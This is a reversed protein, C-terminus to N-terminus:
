SKVSEGPLVELVPGLVQWGGISIRVWYRKDDDVGFGYDNLIEGSMPIDTYSDRVGPMGRVPLTGSTGIKGKGSM